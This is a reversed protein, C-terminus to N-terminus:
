QAFTAHWNAKQREGWFGGTIEVEGLGLPRLRGSTPVVPRGDFGASM